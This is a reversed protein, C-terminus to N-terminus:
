HNCSLQMHVDACNTPRWRFSGCWLKRLASLIVNNRQETEFDGWIKLNPADRTLFFLCIFLYIFLCIFLIRCEITSSLWEKDIKTRRTASSSDLWVKDGCWLFCKWNMVELQLFSWESLCSVSSLIPIYIYINKKKFICVCVRGFRMLAIHRYFHKGNANSLHCPSVHFQTSHHWCLFCQCDRALKGACKAAVERIWRGM